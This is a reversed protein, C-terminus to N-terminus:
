TELGILGDTCHLLVYDLARSLIGPNSHLLLQDAVCVTAGNKGTGSVFRVQATLLASIALM